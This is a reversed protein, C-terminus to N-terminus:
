LSFTELYELFTTIRTINYTTNRNKRGGEREKSARRNIIRHLSNQAEILTMIRKCHEGKTHKLAFDMFWLCAAYFPAGRGELYHEIGIIGEHITNYVSYIDQLCRLLFLSSDIRFWILLTDLFTESDTGM